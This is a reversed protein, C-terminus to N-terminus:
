GRNSRLQHAERVNNSQTDIRVNGLEYAGEGNLRCMQLSSPKSAGRKNWHEEWLGFWEEFTLKFKIGRTAAKRKHTEYAARPTRNREKDALRKQIKQEPTMKRRQQHYASCCVVSCYISNTRPQKTCTSLRCTTM